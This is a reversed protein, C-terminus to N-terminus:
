ARFFIVIPSFVQMPPFQLIKSLSKWGISASALFLSSRSSFPPSLSRTGLRSILIPLFQKIPHLEIISLPVTSPSPHTTPAPATTAPFNSSLQTIAPFGALTILFNYFIKSFRCLDVM